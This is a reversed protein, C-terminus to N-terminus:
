VEEPAPLVIKVPGRLAPYKKSAIYLSIKIYQYIM